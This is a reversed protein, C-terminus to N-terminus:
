HARTAALEIIAKKIARTRTCTASMETANLIGMTAPESCTLANLPGTMAM